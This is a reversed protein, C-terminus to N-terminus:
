QNVKWSIMEILEQPHFSAEGIIPKEYGYVLGVLFGDATQFTLFYFPNGQMFCYKNEFDYIVSAADSKQRKNTLATIEASMELMHHDFAEKMNVHDQDWKVYVYGSVPNFGIQKLKLFYTFDNGNNREITWKPSGEFFFEITNGPNSITETGWRSTSPKAYTDSEKNEGNLFTLEITKLVDKIKAWKAYVDAKIKPHSYWVQVLYGNQSTCQYFATKLEVEFGNSIETYTKFSKKYENMKQIIKAQDGVFAIECMTTYDLETTGIGFSFKGDASGSYGCFGWGAPLKAKLNHNGHTFNANKCIINPTQKVPKPPELGFLSCTCANALLILSLFLSKM